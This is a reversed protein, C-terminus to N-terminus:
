KKKSFKRIEGDFDLELTNENYSVLKITTITQDSPEICELKITKKEDDYTYNECIDADNVPNGCACSYSFFGDSSFRITETDHEADRTWWVNTFSYESYDIKEKKKEKCGTMGFCLSIVLLSLLIKKM